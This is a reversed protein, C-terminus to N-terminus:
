ATVCMHMGHAPIALDLDEAAFDAMSVENVGILVAEEDDRSCPVARASARAFEQGVEFAGDCLEAGIHPSLEATFALPLRLM